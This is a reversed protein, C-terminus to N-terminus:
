KLYKDQYEDYLVNFSDIQNKNQYCWQRFSSSCYSGIKLKLKKAQTFDGLYLAKEGLGIAIDYRPNIKYASLLYQYSHSWQRNIDMMRSALINLELYNRQYNKNLLLGDILEVVEKKNNVPCNDDVVNAVISKLVSVAEISYKSTPLTARLLDLDNETYSEVYCSLQFLLFHGALDDEYLGITERYFSSADDFRSYVTLVEGLHNRSRISETSHKYWYAAQQLPSSWLRVEQWCNFITLSLWLFFSVLLAGKIRQSMVKSEVCLVSLYAIVIAIGFVAIYNRHEYYLELPIFSSELVHSAYYFLIGFTIVSHKKRLLWACIVICLNVIISVTNFFPNLITKAIPFHDNFVSFVNGQPILIKHLYDLIVNSETMLRQALTFDRRDYGTLINSWRSVFYITLLFLPLYILLLKWYIYLRDKPHSKYITADLTIIYLCLLIGNEKSLLAAAFLTPYALFLLIWRCSSAPRIDRSLLWVIIGLLTFFTSLQTMRQTIYEVTSVQIPNFIWIVAVTFAFILSYKKLIEVKRALLLSIYLVLVGNIAHLFVNFLKFNELNNPWSERQFFFTLYSIPRKLAGVGSLIYELAKDFDWKGQHNALSPLVHHDDLLYAGYIGERYFFVTVLGIFIM